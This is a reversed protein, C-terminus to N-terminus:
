LSASLGRSLAGCSPSVSRRSPAETADAPAMAAQDQSASVGYNHPWGLHYIVGVACAHNFLVIIEICVSTASISVLPPAAPLAGHHLGPHFDCGIDRNPEGPLFTRDLINLLVYPVPRGAVLSRM